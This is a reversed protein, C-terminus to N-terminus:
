SNKVKEYFSSVAKHVGLVYLVDDSRIVLDKDVEAIFTDGRKVAVITIGYNQRIKAEGISKGILSQMEAHVQITSLEIDPINSLAYQNKYYQSVSRLMKYNGSRIQNTMDEVKNQPVLYQHLVRTFIEISTEFEEPIVENAGLDLINEIDHVYRTRVVIFATKTLQRINFIINKTAEIDSIAIVVVRAQEINIGQLVSDETADGYTISFGNKKETRVIFPDLEIAVYPIDAMQAVNAVNTGNIGFGVIVLHNNLGSSEGPSHEPHALVPLRKQRDGPLRWKLLARTIPESFGIVFPTMGMTLLAISLFYQYNDPTLLNNEIGTASVIFAFEGVQFLSLGVLLSSRIPYKLIRVALSAISFKLVIVVVTLLIIVVLHSKFFNIDLLMGVSVFFFSMFIERFPLVNGVVQHKYDSESIILGAFFAGLALSLGLAHTAWAVSFCIVMTTLIFLEKSKTNAVAELIKPILNRGGYLVVFIVLIIKLILWGGSVWLNPTESTLLETFLIMPVVALDQFILIGVAIKGHPTHISGKEQLVKLVIATSSLSFVLGTFAAQPVTFGIWIMVLFFALASGLVQISGGILVTKRISVLSKLSFEIGIIFLLFIIGIEELLDVEKLDSIFGLGYPGALIGTILLGLIAPLKFRHFLFIMVASLGLIIVIEKLLLAM